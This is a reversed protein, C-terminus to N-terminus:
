EGEQKKPPTEVATENLSNENEKLQKGWREMYWRLREIHGKDFFADGSFIAADIQDCADEIYDRMKLGGQQSEEFMNMQVFDSGQVHTKAESKDVAGEVDIIACRVEELKEMLLEFQRKQM